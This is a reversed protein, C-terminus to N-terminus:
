KGGKSHITMGTLQLLMRPDSESVVLAVALAKPSPRSNDFASQFFPYINPAAPSVIANSGIYVNTLAKPNIVFLSGDNVRDQLAFYLALAQVTDM